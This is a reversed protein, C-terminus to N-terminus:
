CSSAPKQERQSFVRTHNQLSAPWQQGVETDQCGDRAAAEKLEARADNVADFLDRAQSAGCDKSPM